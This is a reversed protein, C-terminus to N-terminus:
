IALLTLQQGVHRKKIDFVSKGHKTDIAQRESQERRVIAARFRCYEKTLREKRIKYLSVGEIKTIGMRKLGTILDKKRSPVWIREGNVNM